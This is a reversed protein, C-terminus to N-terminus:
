GGSRVAGLSLQFESSAAEQPTIHSLSKLLGAVGLKHITATENKPDGM